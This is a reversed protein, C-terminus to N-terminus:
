CPRWTGGCRRTTSPEASRRGSVGQHTCPTWLHLHSTPPPLHSTPPPLCSAPPPPLHALPPTPYTTHTSGASPQHASSRWVIEELMENGLAPNARPASSKQRQLPSGLPSGEGQSKRPGRIAVRGHSSGGSDPSGKSLRKLYAENATYMRSAYLDSSSALERPPDEESAERRLFPPTAKAARARSIATSSDGRRLAKVATEEEASAAHSDAQASRTQDDASTQALPQDTPTTEAADERMLRALAEVDAQHHAEAVEKAHEAEKAPTHDADIVKRKQVEKMHVKAWIQSPLYINHAMMPCHSYKHVQMHM